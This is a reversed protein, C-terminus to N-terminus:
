FNVKIQSLSSTMIEFHWVKTFHYLISTWIIKGVWVATSTSVSKLFVVEQLWFKIYVCKCEQHYCNWMLLFVGYLFYWYQNQDIKKQIIESDSWSIQLLIKICLSLLVVKNWYTGSKSIPITWQSTWHMPAILFPCDLSVQLMSYVLHLFVFCFSLAIHTPYWLVSVFVFLMFLVHARRCVVTALSSGFMTKMRDDYQVHCCPVRFMFVCLLVVCFVLFILLISGM